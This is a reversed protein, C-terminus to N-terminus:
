AYSKNTTYDHAEIEVEVQVILGDNTSVKNGTVYPLISTCAPPRNNNNNIIGILHTYLMAMIAGNVYKGRSTFFRLKAKKKRNM